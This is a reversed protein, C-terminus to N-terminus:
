ESELRNRTENLYGLRGCLSSIADQRYLCFTEKQFQKWIDYLFQIVYIKDFM